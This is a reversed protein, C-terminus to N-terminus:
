LTVLEPKRFQMISSRNQEFASIIKTRYKWLM